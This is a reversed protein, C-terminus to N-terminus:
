EGKLRSKLSVLWASLGNVWEVDRSLSIVKQLELLLHEDEESWAPKEEVKKLEKKDVDWEYGSEKMKSFLIDRQEKTAPYTSDVDFGLTFGLDFDDDDFLCCHVIADGNSKMREIIFTCSDETLVDGNKADQITWLHMENQKAIPFYNYENGNSVQYNKKDFSDIHWVDGSSNVVWDGVNFKPEVMDTTKEKSMLDEVPVEFHPDIDNYDRSSEVPKQEGQKELWACIDKVKLGGWEEKGLISFDILLRKRIKEDGSEVLKTKNVYVSAGDCKIKNPDISTIDRRIKEGEDDFIAEKAEAAVRRQTKVIEGDKYELGQEELADDFWCRISTRDIGYAECYHKILSAVFKDIDIKAM